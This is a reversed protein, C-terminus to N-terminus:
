NINRISQPRELEVARMRLQENVNILKSADIMIFNESINTAGKPISV